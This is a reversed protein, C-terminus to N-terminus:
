QDALMWHKNWAAKQPPSVQTCYSHNSIEWLDQESRKQMADWCTKRLLVQSHKWSLEVQSDRVITRETLSRAEASHKVQQQEYLPAVLARKIIRWQIGMTKLDRLVLIRGARNQLTLGRWSESCGSPFLVNLQREQLSMKAGHTPSPHITYFTGVRQRCEDRGM